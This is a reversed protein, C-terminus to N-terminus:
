GFRLDNAAIHRSSLAMLSSMRNSAAAFFTAMRHLAANSEEAECQSTILTYAYLAVDDASDLPGPRCGDPLAAIEEPHWSTLFDKVVWLVQETTFAEALRRQWTLLITPTGDFSSPYPMGRNNAPISSM